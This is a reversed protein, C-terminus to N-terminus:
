LMCRQICVTRMRPTVGHMHLSGDLTMRSLTVPFQWPQCGNLVRDGFADNTRLPRSFRVRLVGNNLSAMEMQVDQNQDSWPSRFGLVSEDNVAIRSGMVRVVIVDLGSNMSNGFGVGTWGIAGYPVNVLTLQFHVTRMNDLYWELKYAGDRFECTTSLVGQLCLLSVFLAFLMSNPM